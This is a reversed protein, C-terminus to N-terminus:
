DERNDIKRRVTIISKIRQVQYERISKRFNYDYMRDYGVSKPTYTLYYYLMYAAGVRGTIEGTIFYKFFRGLAFLPHYGLTRMSAGFEYFKHSTGLPRLHEFKAEPILTSSYHCRKAEYLMASEYGMQEPYLGGWVTRQFFSSRVFRGAGHPMVHKHRSYTGSAIAIPHNSDLHSIVKEAYDISYITDDTAIMHYDTFNGLERSKKLAANWNQVVRSIDYGLDPNTIIYLISWRKQINELIEHTKDTSGDDVVIVYEPPITQRKISDLAESITEQSNRCTVIAFYSGV